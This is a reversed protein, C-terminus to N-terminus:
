GSRSSPSARPRARRPSFGRVHPRQQAPSAATGQVSHRRYLEATHAEAACSQLILLLLNASYATIPAMLTDIAVAETCCGCM